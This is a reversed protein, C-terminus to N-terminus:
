RLVGKYDHIRRRLEDGVISAHTATITVGPPAQVLTALDWREVDGIPQPGYPAYQPPSGPLNAAEAHTLITPENAFEPHDADNSFGLADIGYVKAFAAACACMFEIAHLQLPHQGFANPNAGPTDLGNVAIGIAGTNRHFTHEAYGDASFTSRANDHPDHAIRMAWTKGDVLPIVANYAGDCAGYAEASQHLYIRTIDGPPLPAIQRRFSEVVNYAALMIPAGARFAGRPDFDSV